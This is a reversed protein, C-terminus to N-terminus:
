ADDVSVQYKSIVGRMDDVVHLLTGHNTLDLLWEEAFFSHESRDALSVQHLCDSFHTAGAHSALPSQSSLLLYGSLLQKINNLLCATLCLSLRLCAHLDWNKWWKAHKLLETDTKSNICVHSVHNLVKILVLLLRNGTLTEPFLSAQLRLNLKAAVEFVVM